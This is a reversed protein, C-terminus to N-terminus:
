MEGLEAPAPSSERPGISSGAHLLRESSQSDTKGSVPAPPELDAVPTLFVRSVKESWIMSYQQWFDRFFPGHLYVFRFYREWDGSYPGLVAQSNVCIEALNGIAAAM